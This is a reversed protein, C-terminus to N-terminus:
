PWRVSAFSSAHKWASASWKPAPSRSTTSKESRRWIPPLLRVSAAM